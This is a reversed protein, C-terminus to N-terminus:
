QPETGPANSSPMICSLSAIELRAGTALSIGGGLMTEMVTGDVRPSGAECSAFMM